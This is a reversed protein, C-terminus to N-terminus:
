SAHHAKGVGYSLKRTPKTTSLHEISDSPLLPSPCADAKVQRIESAIHSLEGHVGGGLEPPLRIWFESSSGTRRPNQGPTPPAPTSPGSHLHGARLWCSGSVSPPTLLLAVFPASRWQALSRPQPPPCHPGMPTAREGLVAEGSVM